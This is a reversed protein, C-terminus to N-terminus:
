NTQRVKELIEKNQLPANTGYKELNTKRIKEKIIKAQSVYEVGYKEFNTKRIKEKIDKKAFPNIGGNSQLIKQKVIDSKSANDVGYKELCTQKCKEIIEDKHLQKYKKKCEKSTCLKHGGLSKSWLLEENCIECRRLEDIKEVIASLVNEIKEYQQHEKLFNECFKHINPYKKFIYKKRASVIKEIYGFESHIIQLIDEKNMM